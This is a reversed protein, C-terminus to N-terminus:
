RLGLRWAVRVLVLYGLLDKTVVRLDEEKVKTFDGRSIRSLKDDIRVFLQEIPGAKSFLRIPDIASNGYSANKELLLSELERCEQVILGRVNEVSLRAGEALTAARADIDATTTTGLMADKPDVTFLPSAVPPPGNEHVTVEVGSTTAMKRVSSPKEKPSFAGTAKGIRNMTAQHEKDRDDDDSM